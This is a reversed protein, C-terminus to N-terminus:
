GNGDWFICHSQLSHSTPKPSSGSVRYGVTAHAEADSLQRACWLAEETRQARHSPAAREECLERRADPPQLKLESAM